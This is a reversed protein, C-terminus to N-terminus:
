EAIVQSLSTRSNQGGDVKGTFGTISGDEAVLLWAGIDQPVPGGGFGGRQRRGGSEQAGTGPVLCIMLLGAGAYGLLERRTLELRHEHAPLLEYREQELEIPEDLTATSM